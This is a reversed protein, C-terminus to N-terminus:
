LLLAVRSAKIIKFLRGVRAGLKATRATRLVVTDVDASEGLMWSIEFVMSITGAFDMIFFFSMPYSKESLWTFVMEFLFFIMVVLMIADLVNKGPDDPVVAEWRHM